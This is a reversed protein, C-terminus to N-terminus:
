FFYIEYFSDLTGSEQIYNKANPVVYSTWDLNCSFSMKLM